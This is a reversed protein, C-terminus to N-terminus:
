PQSMGNLSAISGDKKIFTPNRMPILGRTIDSDRIVSLSRLRSIETSKVERENELNSREIELRRLQFGQTQIETSNMLYFFSIVGIMFTMSFLLFFKGVRLYLPFSGGSRLSRHFSNSRTLILQAM